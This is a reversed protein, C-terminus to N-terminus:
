ALPKKGDPVTVDFANLTIAVMAYFGIASVLEVMRQEDFMEMGRRFTAESLTHTTNLELTIDYVLREDERTFDPTRRERIGRAYSLFEPRPMAEGAYTASSSPSAASADTAPPDVADTHYSMRSGAWM